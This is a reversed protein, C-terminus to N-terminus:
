YNEELDENKKVLSVNSSLISPLIDYVKQMMKNKDFESVTCITSGGQYKTDAWITILNALLHVLTEGLVAGQFKISDPDGLTNYQGEFKDTNYSLNLKEFDTKIDPHYFNSNGLIIRKSNIGVESAKGEYLRSGIFIKDGDFQIQNKNNGIYTNGESNIYVEANGGKVNLHYKIPRDNLNELEIIMDGEPSVTRTVRFDDNHNNDVERNSVELNSGMVPHFTHQAAVNELCGVIIPKTYDNNLYSIVLKAGETKVTGDDNFEWIKPLRKTGDKGTFNQWLFSIQDETYATGNDDLLILQYDSENSM